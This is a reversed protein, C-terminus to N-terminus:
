RGGPVWFTYHVQYEYDVHYRCDCWVQWRKGLAGGRGLTMWVWGISSEVINLFVLSVGARASGTFVVM